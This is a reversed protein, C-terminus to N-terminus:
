QQFLNLCKEKLTRRFIHNKLERLESIKARIKTWDKPDDTESSVVTNDFIIPLKDLELAQMTLITNVQNGTKVEIAVNQILFGAFQFRDEDPLRPGVEFYDDLNVIGNVTPLLIRNIYRLRIVRIQVPSALETYLRWTREIEPFYEDLSTYPSLRNFSFGSVRVQVLQKVDNTLFQLAQLDSRSSTKPEGVPNAVQHEVQHEFLYQKQFKSYHDRFVELAPAELASLQQGPPLDCEIDLVAEVIPANKLNLIPENM